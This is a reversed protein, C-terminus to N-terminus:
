EKENLVDKKKFLYYSIIILPINLMLGRIVVIGFDSYTMEKMILKPLSYSDMYPLWTTSLLPLYGFLFYEAYFISFTIFPAIRINTLLGIIVVALGARMYFLFQTIFDMASYLLLGSRDIIDYNLFCFSFILNVLEILFSFVASFTLIDYM